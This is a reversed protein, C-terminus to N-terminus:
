DPSEPLIEQEVFDRPLMSTVINRPNPFYITIFRSHYICKGNPSFQGTQEGMLLVCSARFLPCKTLTRLTRIRSCRM